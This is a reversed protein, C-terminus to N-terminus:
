GALLESASHAEIAREIFATLDEERALGALTAEMEPSVAGFRARLMQRIAERMGLLSGRQEGQELGQEFVRDAWTLETTEM